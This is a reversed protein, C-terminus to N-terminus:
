CRPIRQCHWQRLRRGSAVDAAFPELCPQDNRQDHALGVIDAIGLRRLFPSVAAAQGLGTDRVERDAAVLIIIVAIIHHVRCEHIELVVVPSLCSRKGEQQESFHPARTGSAGDTARFEDVGLRYIERFVIGPEIIIVAAAVCIPGQRDVVQVTRHGADGIGVDHEVVALVVAHDGVGATFDMGGPVSRTHVPSMPRRFRESALPSSGAATSRSDRVVETRGARRARDLREPCAGEDLGLTGGQERATRRCAGM